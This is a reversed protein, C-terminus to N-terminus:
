PRVDIRSTARGERCAHARYSAVGTKEPPCVRFKHSLATALVHAILAQEIFTTTTPTGQSMRRKTACRELRHQREDEDGGGREIRRECHRTDANAEHRGIRCADRGDSHVLAEPLLLLKDLRLALRLGRDCFALRTRAGTREFGATAGAVVDLASPLLPKQSCGSNILFCFFCALILWRAIVGRDVGRGLALYM